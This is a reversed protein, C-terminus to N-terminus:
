LDGFEKLIGKLHYNYAFVNAFDRFLVIGEMGNQSGLLRHDGLIQARRGGKRHQDEKSTRRYRRHITM